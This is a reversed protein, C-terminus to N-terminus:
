LRFYGGGTEEAIKRLDRSPRSKVVRVGNFYEAELGIAYVM